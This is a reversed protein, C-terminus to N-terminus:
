FINTMKEVAVSMKRLTEIQKDLDFVKTKIPVQSLQALNFLVSVDIPKNSNLEKIKKINSKFYSDNDFRKDKILINELKNILKIIKEEM